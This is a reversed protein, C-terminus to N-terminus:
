YKIPGRLKQCVNLVMRGLLYFVNKTACVYKYCSYIHNVLKNYIYLKGLLLQLFAHFVRAIFYMDCYVRCSNVKSLNKITKISTEIGSRLQYESVPNWIPISRLKTEIGLLLCASHYEKYIRVKHSLLLGFLLSFWFYLSLWFFFTGLRCSIPPFHDFSGAACLESTKLTNCNCSIFVKFLVVLVFVVYRVRSEKNKLKNLYFPKV